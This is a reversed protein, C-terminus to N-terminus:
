RDLTTLSFTPENALRGRSLRHATCSIRHIGKSDHHAALSVHNPRSRFSLHCQPSIKAHCGDGHLQHWACAVSAQNPKARRFKRVTQQPEPRM